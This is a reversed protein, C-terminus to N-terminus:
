IHGRMLLAASEFPKYASFGICWTELRPSSTVNSL